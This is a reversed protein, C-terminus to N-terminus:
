RAIFTWDQDVVPVGEAHPHSRPDTDRPNACPVSAVTATMSLCGANATRIQDTDFLAMTTAPTAACPDLTVAGTDAVTLCRGDPATLQGAPTLQWTPANACDVPHVTTTDYGLCSGNATLRGHAGGRISQLEVQRSQWGRPSNADYDDYTPPKNAVPDYTKRKLAAEAKAFSPQTVSFGTAGHNVMGDDYLAYYAMIQTKTTTQSDCWPERRPCTTLTPPEQSISYDRYARLALPAAQSAQAALAASLTFQAAYVHDWYDRYGCSSGHDRGHPNCPAPTGLGDIYLGTADQFSVSNSITDATFHTILGALVQTLQDRTILQGPLDTGLPCDTCALTQVTGAPLPDTTGARGGRGPNNLWADELQMDSLRLYVLSLTQTGQVLDYEAMQAGAIELTTASWLSSISTGPVYATYAEDHAMFAYANLNGRERDVWYQQASPHDALRAAGAAGLDGATLHIVVVHNGAEISNAIDPNMFLLDDDEHAVVYLDTCPAAECPPSSTSLPPRVNDTPQALDVGCGITCVVLCAAVSWRM